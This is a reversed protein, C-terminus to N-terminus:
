FRLLRWRPQQEEPRKAPTWFEGILRDRRYSSCLIVNFGLQRLNKFTWNIHYTIPGWLQRVQNRTGSNRSPSRGGFIHTRSAAARKGLSSTNGVLLVLLLFANIQFNNELDLYNFSFTTAWLIGLVAVVLPADCTALSCTSSVNQWRYICQIAPSPHWLVIVMQNFTIKNFSLCYQLWAKLKSSLNGRVLEFTRRASGKNEFSLAKWGIMRVLGACHPASWHGSDMFLTFQHKNFIVLNMKLRDKRSRISAIAMWSSLSVWAWYSSSLGLCVISPSSPSPSSSLFM